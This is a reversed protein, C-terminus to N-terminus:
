HSVQRFQSLLCCKSSQKPHAQQATGTSRTPKDVQCKQTVAAAEKQPKRLHEQYAMRIAHTIQKRQGSLNTAHHSTNDHYDAIPKM